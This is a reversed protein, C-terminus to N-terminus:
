EVGGCSRLIAYVDRRRIYRFDRLVKLGDWDKRGWWGVNVVVVLVWVGRGLVLYSLCPSIGLELGQM